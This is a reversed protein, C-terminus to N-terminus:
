ESEVTTNKLQADAMAQSFLCWGTMLEPNNGIMVTFTKREYNLKVMIDNLEYDTICDEPFSKFLLELLQSNSMKVNSAEPHAPIFQLKIFEEIQQVYNYM